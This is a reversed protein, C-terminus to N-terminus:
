REFIPLYGLPVELMLVAMATAYEAGQPSDWAGREDQDALIKPFARDRWNRWDEGGLQFYVQAAYFNGYFPWRRAAGFPNSPFRALQDRLYGVGRAHLESHYEGAADLTSVAAATMEYTTRSPPSALSYRFSGNPNSCKELYRVAKEVVLADVRIGSDKATRLAQLCCVTISAEDQNRQSPEYFWGGDVSQADEILDVGNDIVDRLDKALPMGVQGLVQSLFLVAYAHGHMRSAFDGADSIYGSSSSRDILYTVARHLVEQHPGRGYEVGRGLLAMGGLATVAVPYRTSFAGSPKQQSALFRVGRDISREIRRQDNPTRAAEAQSSEQYSVGVWGGSGDDLGFAATGVLAITVVGVLAVCSAWTGVM